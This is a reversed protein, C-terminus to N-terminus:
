VQTPLEHLRFTADHVPGHTQEIGAPDHLAPAVM